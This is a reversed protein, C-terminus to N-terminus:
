SSICNRAADYKNLLPACAATAITGPSLAGEGIRGSNAAAGIPVGQPGMDWAAPDPSFPTQIRVCEPPTLITLELTVFVNVTVNGAPVNLSKYPAGIVEGTVIAGAVPKTSKDVLPEIHELEEGVEVGVEEEQWFRQFEVRATGVPKPAEKLRKEEALSSRILMSQELEESVTLTPLEEWVSYM